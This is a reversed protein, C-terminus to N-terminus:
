KEVERGHNAVDCGPEALIRCDEFFIWGLVTAHLLFATANGVLFAMAGGLMGHSPVLLAASLATAGVSVVMIPMQVFFRRAALIGCGSFSVLYAFGGGAMLWVLVAPKRAYEEGYLFGLLYEGFFVAICMGTLALGTGLGLLRRLLRFYARHNGAAHLQALRPTASQGMAMVVMGGAFVLYALAAYIGLESTGGYHEVFYRPVNTQLSTLVSALGLPLALKSLKAMKQFCFAPRPFWGGGGLEGALLSMGKPGDFALWVVGWAAAMALVGFLVEGTAWLVAWLVGLSLLGKLTRSVAVIDMREHRQMLGYFVDGLSEIAKAIAVALIIWATTAGYGLAGAVAAVALALTSTTLRLGFYDHFTFEERADTAQIGRLQFQSFLFIPATVALGLAFQGVSEATTTRALAVFMGWQCGAYVLNGALNWAFNHRLSLRM